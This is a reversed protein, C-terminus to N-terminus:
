VYCNTIEDYSLYCEKTKISFTPNNLGALSHTDLLNFVVQIVDGNKVSLPNGNQHYNSTYFEKNGSSVFLSQNKYSITVVNDRGLKFPTFYIEKGSTLNRIASVDSIGYNTFIILEADVPIDGRCVNVEIGSNYIFTFDQDNGFMNNGILMKKGLINNLKILKPISTSNGDFVLQPTVLIGNSLNTKSLPLYSAVGNASRKYVSHGYAKINGYFLIIGDLETIEAYAGSSNSLPTTDSTINSYIGFTHNTGSPDANIQEITEVLPQYKGLFAQRRKNYGLPDFWAVNALYDNNANYSQDSTNFDSTAQEFRGTIFFNNGYPYIDILAGDPINTATSSAFPYSIEEQIAIPSNHAVSFRSVDYKLIFAPTTNLANYIAQTMNGLVYLKKNQTFLKKPQLKTDDSITVGGNSGGNSTGSLNITKVYNTPYNISTLAFLQDVDYLLRTDADRFRDFVGCVYLVGTESDYHIDNVQGVGDGHDNQEFYYHYMYKTDPEYRFMSWRTTALGSNSIGPVTSISDWYGGVYVGPFPGQAACITLMNGLTTNPTLPISQTEIVTTALKSWAGSSYKVFHHNKISTNEQEILAYLIGNYECADILRSKTVDSTFNPMNASEVTNDENIFFFSNGSSQIIMNNFTTTNYSYPVCKNLCPNLTTGELTIEQGFWSDIEENLGSQYIFDFYMCGVDEQDCKEYPTFYIRVPRDTKHIFQGVNYRKSIFDEFDNSTVVGNISINREEINSFNYLRTNNLAQEFLIPELNPYGLGEISTVKFGSEYLSVIEGGSYVTKKRISTSKYPEGTWTYGDIPDYSEPKTNGSFYTTLNGAELQMATIQYKITSVIAFNKPVGDNPLVGTIFVRTFTNSYVDVTKFQNDFRVTIQGSEGIGAIYFSFTYKGYLSLGSQYTLISTTYPFVGLSTPEFLNGQTNLFVDAGSHIINSNNIPYNLFCPNIILNEKEQPSVIGFWGKKPELLYGNEINPIEQFKLM